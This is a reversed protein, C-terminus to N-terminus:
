LVLWGTLVVYSGVVTLTVPVAWREVWKPIGVVAFQRGLAVAVLFLVGAAGLYVVSIIGLEARSLGAFFPIFVAINEGSLGIGAATVIGVRGLTGPAQETEGVTIEPHRVVLGWLGMGLPIAGLLFTWEALVGTAFMAGLVAVGLGVLFGAYHGVVVERLRYEDDACFSVLVILTDLHTVVFLWTGVGLVTQM